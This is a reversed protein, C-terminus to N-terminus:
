RVVPETHDEARSMGSQPDVLPTSAYETRNSAKQSADNPRWEHRPYLREYLPGSVSAASSTISTASSVLSYSFRRANPSFVTWAASSMNFIETITTSHGASVCPFTCAQNEAEHAHALPRQGIRRKRDVRLSIGTRRWHHQDGHSSSFRSNQNSSSSTSANKDTFLVIPLEQLLLAVMPTWGQVSSSLRLPLCETDPVTSSAFLRLSGIMTRRHRSQELAGDVTSRGIPRAATPRRM